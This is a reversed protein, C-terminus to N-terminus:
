SYRIKDTPNAVVRLRTYGIWAISLLIAFLSPRYFSWFWIYGFILLSLCSVCMCIDFLSHNFRWLLLERVMPVTFILAFAIYGVMGFQLLDYGFIDMTYDSASAESCSGIPAVALALIGFALIKRLM